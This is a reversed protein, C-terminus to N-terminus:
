IILITPEGLVEKTIEDVYPLKHRKMARMVEKVGAIYGHYFGKDLADFEYWDVYERRAFARSKRYLKKYTKLNKRVM